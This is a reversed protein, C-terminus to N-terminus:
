QASQFRLCAHLLDAGGHRVVLALLGLQRCVPFESDLIELRRSGVARLPM